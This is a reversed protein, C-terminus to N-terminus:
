RLVPRSRGDPDWIPDVAAAFGESIRVATGGNSPVVFLTSGPTRPAAWGPGPGSRSRRGDPSFRPETGSARGAPRRRWSNAHRVDRRRKADSRFAILSGDPSFAPARDDAPDDTISPQGGLTRQLWLNLQGEGSRDSAYVVLTGDPSIAPETSFSDDRTVHSSTRGWHPRLSLHAGFHPTGTRRGAFVRGSRGGNDTIRVRGLAEVNRQRTQATAPRSGRMSRSEPM